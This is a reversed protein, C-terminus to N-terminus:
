RIQTLTEIFKSIRFASKGDIKYMYEEIYKNIGKELNPLKGDLFQNLNYGFDKDNKILFGAKYKEIKFIDGEGFLDLQFLMQKQAIIDFALTSAHVINIDSVSILDNNNASILVKFFLNSNQLLDYEVNDLSGPHTKIIFFIEESFRSLNKILFDMIKMKMIESLTQGSPISYFTIIKKDKPLAYHRKIDQIEKKYKLIIDTRPVGVVIVRKSPIGLNVFHNKVKKGDTFVFDYLKHNRFYFNETIVGTSGLNVSFTKINYKRCVECLVHNYYLNEYRTIFCKPKYKKCFSIFAQFLIRAKFNDILVLSDIKKKIIKLYDIDEFFFPYKDIKNLKKSEVLYRLYTIIVLIFNKILCYNSMIGEIIFFSIRENKLMTKENKSGFTLFISNINNDSLEKYIPILSELFSKGSVVLLTTNQLDKKIIFSNRFLAYNKYIFYKMFLKISEFILKVNKINKNKLKVCTLKYKISLQELTLGELSNNEQIIVKEINNNKILLEMRNIKMFIDCFLWYLHGKYIDFISQEDILLNLKNVLANIQKAFIENQYYFVKAQISHLLNNEDIYNELLDYRLGVKDLKNCIKFSRTLFISENTHYKRVFKENFHEIYILTNM